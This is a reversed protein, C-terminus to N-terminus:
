DTVPRVSDGRTRTGYPTWSNYGEHFIVICSESSPGDDLTASRYQGIASSGDLLTGDRFGAAPLFISNGNPGTVLQGNVGNYTTWELTCNDILEKFESITPMRWSGGWKVHAVDDEPDLVIKNDVIGHNSNTCYKTMFFDTGNGWKYTELNYDSKEETEGWAYYGGYEEPKSAGVNCTAWKVSLGLDVAEMTDAPKEPTVVEEENPEQIPENEEDDGCAQLVCLAFGVFLLIFFRQLYKLNNM